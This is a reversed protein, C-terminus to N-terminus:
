TLWQGLIIQNLIQPFDQYISISIMINQIASLSRDETPQM